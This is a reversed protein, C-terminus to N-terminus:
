NGEDLSYLLNTIGTALLAGGVIATFWEIFSGAVSRSFLLLGFSVGFFIMYTLKGKKNM